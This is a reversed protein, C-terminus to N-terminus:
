ASLPGPGVSVVAGSNLTTATIYDFTGGIDYNGATNGILSGSFLFASSGVSKVGRGVNFGSSLGRIDIASAQAAVKHVGHGTCDRAIGGNISILSCGSVFRIGDANAPAYGLGFRGFANVGNGTANTVSTFEYAHSANLSSSTDQLILKNITDFVFGKEGLTDARSNFLSVAATNRIDFGRQNPLNYTGCTGLVDCDRFFIGGASSGLGALNAYFGTYDSTAVGVYDVTVENLFLFAFGKTWSVGPGNHGRFQVSRIRTTVHFGTSASDTIGGRSNFTVINDLETREITSAGCAIHFDYGGSKAADEVRVNEITVDSGTITFLDYSGAIATVTAKNAPGTIHTNAPVTVAGFSITEPLLLAIGQEAAANIAKQVAETDDAGNLKAGYDYVNLGGSTAARRALKDFQRKTERNWESQNGWSAPLTV